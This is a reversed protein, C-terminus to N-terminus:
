KGELLKPLFSYRPNLKIFQERQKEDLQLYFEIVEKSIMVKEGDTGDQVVYATRSQISPKSPATSSNPIRVKQYILLEQIAKQNEVIAQGQKENEKQQRKIEARDKEIMLQLTKNDVKQKLEETMGNYIAGIPGLVFMGIMTLIVAITAIPNKRYFVEKPPPKIIKKKFFM